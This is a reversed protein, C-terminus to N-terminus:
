NMALRLSVAGSPIQSRIDYSGSFTLDVISMDIAFGGYLVPRVHEDFSTSVGDSFNSPLFGYKIANALEQSDSKLISAWNAHVKWDVSSKSFMVRGGVFPVFCLLKISAQTSLVISTTEFDLEASSGDQEVGFNGKSYYAGLGVSLKPRLIGGELIAYRVDGGVMFFDFNAPDIAKGIPKVMNSDLSMATFGVDFPLLFGGVRFDATITPWVLTNPIGDGDSMGLAEAVSVIPSLDLKTFGSNIGFGFNPVPLINGIWANAWVNQQIQSNPIVDALVDSFDNLGKVTTTYPTLTSLGSGKVYTDYASVAKDRASAADAQSVNQSELASEIESKHDSIIKMLDANLDTIDLTNDGWKLTITEAYLSFASFSALMLVALFRIRKM